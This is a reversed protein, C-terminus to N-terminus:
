ADEMPWTDRADTIKILLKKILEDLENMSFLVSNLEFYRGVYMSAFERNNFFSDQNNTFYARATDFDPISNGLQKQLVNKQYSGDQMWMDLISYNQILYPLEIDQWYDDFKGITIRLHDIEGQYLFINGRLEESDINSFGGSSILETLTTTALSKIRLPGLQSCNRHLFKDRDEVAVVDRNLSDILNLTLILQSQVVRINQQLIQENSKLEKALSSLNRDVRYNVKQVENWNNIQLAILIGIVVLFIEGIAYVLYKRIKNDILFQQRIRRFFKLMKIKLTNGLSLM